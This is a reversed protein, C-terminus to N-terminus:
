YWAGLESLLFHYSRRSSSESCRGLNAIVVYLNYKKNNKM